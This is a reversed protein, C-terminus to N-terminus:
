MPQVTTQPAQVYPVHPRLSVRPSHRLAVPFRFICGSPDRTFKAGNPGGHEAIRKAVNAARHNVFRDSLDTRNVYRCCEALDEYRPQNPFIRPDNLKRALHQLNLASYGGEDYLLAWLDLIISKEKASSIYRIQWGNTRNRLIAVFKV